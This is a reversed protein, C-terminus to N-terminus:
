SGNPKQRADELERIRDDMRTIQERIARLEAHITSMTTDLGGIRADLRMLMTGQVRMEDRLSAVDTMLRELQRAIFNLDVESM